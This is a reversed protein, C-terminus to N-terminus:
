HVSNLGSRAMLSFFECQLSWLKGETLLSGSLFFVDRIIRYTTQGRAIQWILFAM